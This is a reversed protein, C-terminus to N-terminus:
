RVRMNEFSILIMQFNNVNVFVTIIARINAFLEERVTRRIRNLLLINTYLFFLTHKGSYYYIFVLPFKEFEDTPEVRKKALRTSTYRDLGKVKSPWYCFKYDSTIWDADVM